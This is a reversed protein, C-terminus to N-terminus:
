CKENKRFDAKKQKDKTITWSETTSTTSSTTGISTIETQTKKCDCTRSKRCAAGTVAVAVIAIIIIINKM